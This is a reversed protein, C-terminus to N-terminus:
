PGAPSPKRGHAGHVHATARGARARTAPPKPAAAETTASLGGLIGCHAADRPVECQQRLTELQRELQRLERIREAVHGIHEDLLANVEACGEQPSDKFHLLVRIEDLTLDLERARRIFGLREIHEPGYMRYNADSRPAVPMLGEREYYRITQVGTRTRTALTGIKM